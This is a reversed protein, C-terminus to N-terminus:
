PLSVKTKRKRWIPLAVASPRYLSGLPCDHRGLRMCTLGSGSNACPEIKKGISGFIRAQLTLIIHIQHPRTLCPPIQKSGFPHLSCKNTHNADHHHSHGILLTHTNTTQNSRQQRGAGASPWCAKQLYGDPAPVYHLRLPLNWRRLGYRDKSPIQM